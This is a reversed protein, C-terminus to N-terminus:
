YAWTRYDEAIQRLAEPSLPEFDSVGGTAEAVRGALWETHFNLGDRLIAIQERLAAVENQLAAIQREQQSQKVSKM